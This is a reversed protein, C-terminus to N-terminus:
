ARRRYWGTVSLRDVRTALVEHERGASLFCALRGGVPAIDRYTGNGAHVRLEGGAGPAWGDNLYLVVSVVRHNSGQPQDLHRAYASGPPYWAYHAELDFLGYYGHRNLDLRLNELDSLLAREAAFLPEALWCTSDGRIDGRRQLREEKGIRAASFDGRHRRQVACDILARVRPASLFGDEVAVGDAVLGPLPGAEAPAAADSPV